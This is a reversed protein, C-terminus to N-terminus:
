KMRIRWEKPYYNNTRNSLVKVWGLVNQQFSVLRWGTGGEIAIAEGRLYNLADVESLEIPAEPYNLLPSLALAHAPVFDTNMFKGLEVGPMTVYIHTALENLKDYSMPSAFVSGDHAKVLDFKETAIFKPMAALEKKSLSEFVEKPRVKRGHDAESRKRLAAIFFGEGNVKHPLFRYGITGEHVLEQIGWLADLQLRISEFAGDRTWAALNLENEEPAFTCTSYILIGGPRLSESVENVIRKQRASCLAVNDISWENRADPDKRFMGEGSCPADVVICDFFSEHEAFRGADSSTVIANTAGWKVLNERLVANRQKIVENSILVGRDKLFTSILISKGGPAACLDLIRPSQLNGCTQKLVEMLFMSSSEQPYYAGAHFSPDLTFSPRSSLTRGSKYWPVEKSNLFSTAQKATNIHITTAPSNELATLLEESEKGFQLQIRTVFDPPLNIPM